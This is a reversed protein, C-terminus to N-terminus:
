HGHGFEKAAGASAITWDSGDPHFAPNQLLRRHWLSSYRERMENRDGGKDRRWKILFDWFAEFDARSRTHAVAFREEEQLSKLTAVISESPSVYLVPENHSPDRIVSRYYDLSKPSLQVEIRFAGWEELVGWADPVTTRFVHGDHEPPGSHWGMCSRLVSEPYMLGALGKFRLFGCVFAAVRAVWLPHTQVQFGKSTILRPGFAEQDSYYFKRRAGTAMEPRPHVRRPGAAWVVRKDLRGLPQMFKKRMLCRTVRAVQTESYRTLLQIASPDVVSWHLACLYISLESRTHLSPARRSIGAGQQDLFAILDDIM